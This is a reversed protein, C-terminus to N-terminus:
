AFNRVITQALEPRAILRTKIAVISPTNAEFWKPGPRWYSMVAIYVDLVTLSTGFFWPGQVAAEIQRWLTERHRDTSSRLQKAAEDGVWKTPDDGYTFTPYVAAVLFFLWRYFEARHPDGVVPILGAQPALDAIYHLAASETLVRGDPAILLPVQGLPNVALLRQRTTSGHSYDVEEYDYDVHALAFAAEVIASGCGKCGILLHKDRMTM